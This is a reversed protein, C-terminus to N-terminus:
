TALRSQLAECNSDDFTFFIWISGTRREELTWSRASKDFYKSRQIQRETRSARLEITSRPKRSLKPMTQGALEYAFDIRNSYSSRQTCASNSIHVFVWSSGRELRLQAALLPHPTKFEPTGVQWLRAMKVGQHSPMTNAVSSIPRGYNRPRNSSSKECSFFQWKQHNAHM